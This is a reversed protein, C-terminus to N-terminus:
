VCSMQHTILSLQCTVFLMQYIFNPLDCIVNSLRYFVKSQHSPSMYVLVHRDRWYALRRKLRRYLKWHAYFCWKQLVYNKEYKVKIHSCFQNSNKLSRLLVDFNHIKKSVQNSTIFFTIPLISTIGFTLFLLHLLYYKDPPPDAKNLERLKAEDIRSGVSLLSATFFNNIIRNFINHTMSFLQLM